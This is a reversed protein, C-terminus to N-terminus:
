RGGKKTRTSGGRSGSSRAPSSGRSSNSSRSPPSYSRSSGGRAPPEVSRTRRPPPAQVERDRTTRQPPPAVRREQRPSKDSRNRAEPVRRAPAPEPTVRRPQPRQADIRAPRRNQPPMVRGYDVQGPGDNKVVRGPSPTTPRLVRTGTGRIDPASGGDGKIVRGGVEPGRNGINRDKIRPVGNNAYDYDYDHHHHIRGHYWSDYYWSNYGNCYYWPDYYAYYYPYPQWYCWYFSLSPWWFPDYYYSYYYGPWHPYYYGFSAYVNSRYTQDLGTAYQSDQNGSDTTEPPAAEVTTDQAAPAAPAVDTKGTNIMYTIVADSVGAKKLDLIEQVTLHFVTGDAEIKAMIIADSAKARTLGIVDDVTLAWAPVALTMFAAACLGLIWTRM